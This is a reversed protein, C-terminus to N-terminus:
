MKVTLYRRSYVTTSLDNVEREVVQNVADDVTVMFVPATGHRSDGRPNTLGSKPISLVTIGSRHSFLARGLEALQEADM